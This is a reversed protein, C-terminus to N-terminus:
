LWHIFIKNNYFKHYIGSVLSITHYAPDVHICGVQGEDGAHCITGPHDRLIHYSTLGLVVLHAGSEVEGWVALRM